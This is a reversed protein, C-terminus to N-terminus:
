VRAARLLVASVPLALLAFLFLVLVGTILSVTGLALVTGAVRKKTRDTRGAAPRVGSALYM